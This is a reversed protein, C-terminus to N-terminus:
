NPPSPSYFTDGCFAGEQYTRRTGAEAEALEALSELRPAAWRTPGLLHKQHTDM